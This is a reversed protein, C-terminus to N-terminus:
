SVRFKWRLPLPKANKCSLDWSLRVFTSMKIQIGECSIERVMSSAPLLM